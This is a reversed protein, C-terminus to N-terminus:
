RAADERTEWQTKSSDAVASQTQAHRSTGWICKWGAAALSAEDAVRVTQVAGAPWQTEAKGEGKEGGRERAMWGDM